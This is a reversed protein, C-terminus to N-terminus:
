RKEMSKLFNTTEVKTVEDALMFVEDSLAIGTLIITTDEQKLQFLEEMEQTSIIGMELLGLIEDVILLDCEGTSLVKKAYNLGNKM